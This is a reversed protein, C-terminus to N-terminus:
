EALRIADPDEIKPTGISRSDLMVRRATKVKGHILAAVQYRRRDDVEFAADMETELDKQIDAAIRDWDLLAQSLAPNSDSM